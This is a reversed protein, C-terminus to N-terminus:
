GACMGFCGRRGGHEFHPMHMIAVEFGAASCVKSHRRQPCTSVRWAWSFYGSTAWITWIAKTGPPTQARAAKPVFRAKGRLCVHFRIDFLMRFPSKGCHREAGRRQDYREADCKGQKLHQSTQRRKRSALRWGSGSGTRPRASGTTLNANARGSASFRGPQTAKGYNEPRSRLEAPETTAWFIPLPMAM